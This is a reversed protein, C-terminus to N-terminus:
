MRFPSPVPLAPKRNMKKGDIDQSRRRARLRKGATVADEGLQLEIFFVGEISM